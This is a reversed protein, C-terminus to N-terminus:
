GKGLNEIESPQYEKPYMIRSGNIHRHPPYDRKLSEDRNLRRIVQWAVVIFIGLSGSHFVYDTFPTM